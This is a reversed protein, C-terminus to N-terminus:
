NIKILPCWKMIKRVIKKKIIKRVMKKKIIKREAKKKVDYICSNGILKLVNDKLTGFEKKEIANDFLESIENVFELKDDVIDNYIHM